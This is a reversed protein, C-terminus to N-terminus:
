VKKRRKDVKWERYSAMFFWATALIAVIHLVRGVIEMQNGKSKWNM